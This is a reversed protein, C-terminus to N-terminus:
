GGKMLLLAGAALLLLPSIGGAPAPMPAVPTQGNVYTQGNQGAYSAAQAGKVTVWGRVATDILRSVGYMAANEDWSKGNQPYAQEMRAAEAFDGSFVTWGAPAPSPDNEWTTEGIARSYVNEGDTGIASGDDYQYVSAM